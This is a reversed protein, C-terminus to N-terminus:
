RTGIMAAAHHTAMEVVMEDGSEITLAPILEKPQVTAGTCMRQLSSYPM